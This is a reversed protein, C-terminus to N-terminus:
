QLFLEVLFVNGKQLLVKRGVQSHRHHLPSRVEQAKRLEMLYGVLGHQFPHFFDVRELLDAVPRFERFRAVATLQRKERVIRIQPRAHIRPAVGAGALLARVEILTEQGGHLLPGFLGIQDNHIVMQEKGVQRELLVIEAANQRFIRCHHEVFCVLHFVHGAIIESPLNRIESEFFQGAIGIM